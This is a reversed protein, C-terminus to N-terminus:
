AGNAVVFTARQSATNGRIDTASVELEYSGSKLSSSDWGQSLYIRYSGRRNPRNQRTGPAYVVALPPPPLRERADLITQWRRAERGREDLVRWRVLSPMLVARDWPAPPTVPASDDLVVVIDVVGRLASTIERGGRSFTIERVDPRSDDSYPGMAGTRLPNAYVGARRESVHVHRQGHTIRGIMTRYAVAVLGPRVAPVVHWYELVVGDTRQVIVVDYHLPHTLVYGSATAYVATGDPVSVDVGFHYQGTVAAGPPGPVIRPDAFQGRVAHQVFFPKVPYGYSYPTVPMVRVGIRVTDRRPDQGSSTARLGLVPRSGIRAGATLSLELSITVRRGPRLRVRLGGHAVLATVDSGRVRYHTRISASPIEELTFEDVRNGDNELRVTYRQTLSRHGRAEVTQAAGGPAYVDMGIFPGVSPAVALDPQAYAAISQWDPSTDRGPDNSLNRAETGDIKMVYVDASGDRDTEFAIVAGDPGWSPARDTAPHDTLQAPDGGGVPVVYVEADGDGDSTFALSAGTPSWTPETENGTGAFLLTAEAGDVAIAYLDSGTGPDRAFVIRAGDPAWAPNSDRTSPSRTVNM